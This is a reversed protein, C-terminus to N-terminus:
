APSAGLGAIVDKVKRFETSKDLFWSAGAEICRLRYQKSAHNTLVVFITGPSVPHVARMVEIGTGGDLQYDLVVCHPRTQLIGDIAQAATEAEGVVNVGGIQDLLEAVRERIMPSDEAIFVKISDRTEM